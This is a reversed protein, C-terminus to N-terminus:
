SHASGHNVGWQAACLAREVEEVVRLRTSLSTAIRRHFAMGCLNQSIETPPWLNKRVLGDGQRVSAPVLWDSCM